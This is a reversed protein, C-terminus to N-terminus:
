IGPEKGVWAGGLKESENKERQSAKKVLSVPPGPSSRHSKTTKGETDNERVRHKVNQLGYEGEGKKGGQDNKKQSISKKGKVNKERLIGSKKEGDERTPGKL